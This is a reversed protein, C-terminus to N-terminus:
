LLGMKNILGPSVNLGGGGNAPRNLHLCSMPRNKWQCEPRSLILRHNLVTVLTSLEYVEYNYPQYARARFQSEEQAVSLTVEYHYM